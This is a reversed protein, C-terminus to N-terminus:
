VMDNVYRIWPREDQSYEINQIREGAAALPSSTHSGVSFESVVGLHLSFNDM